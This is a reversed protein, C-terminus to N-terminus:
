YYELIIVLRESSFGTVTKENYLEKIVVHVQAENGTKTEPHEKQLSDKPQTCLFLQENNSVHKMLKVESIERGKVFILSLGCFEGPKSHIALM